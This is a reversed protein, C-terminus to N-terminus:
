KVLTMKRTHVFGDTLLRYFYVGSSYKGADWKVEYKGASLNENALVEIERGTVDYVSLRVFSSKPIDFRITTVPNFPNPYNQSLSFSSPIKNSILSIRMVGTPNLKYYIEEIGHRTDTFVVHISSDLIAVSPRFSGGTTHTTLQLSTGWTAGGNTSCIYYIEPTGTFDDYVLHIQQGSAVISPYWTQGTTTTMRTDASWTLGMDTSRKYYIELNGDRSDKWVVHVLSGSSSVCADNQPSSNNTLRIDSGWTTGGDTSSKYYIEDNGDRNDHWVCHVNSGSVSVSPGLSWGSNSTLRTDAEWSVGGNTSRKYYIEADGDRYDWWVVNVSLGSVALSPYESLSPANTLRIDSGWSNGNDTSRKYYIENNGDRDDQWVVHVVSVSVAICALMSHGSNNTLRNEAEFSAGYNTSRIYYIERNSFGNRDDFWVLHVYNGAAAVGRANNFCTYSYANDNTIRVDSLWQSYLSCTILFFFIIIFTKM